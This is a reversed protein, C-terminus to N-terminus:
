KRVRKEEGLIGALKYRSRHIKMKVASLSLGLTAAIEDYSLEDAVRM